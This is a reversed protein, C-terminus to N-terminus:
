AVCHTRDGQFVLSIPSSVISEGSSSLPRTTSATTSSMPNDLLQHHDPPHLVEHTMVNPIPVTASTNTAMDSDFTQATVLSRTTAAM